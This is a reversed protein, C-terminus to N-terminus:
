KTIYPFISISIFSAEGRGTARSIFWPQESDSACNSNRLNLDEIRACVYSDSETRMSGM